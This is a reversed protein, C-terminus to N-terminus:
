QGCVADAPVRLCLVMKKTGVVIIFGVQKGKKEWKIGSLPLCSRKMYFAEFFGLPLFPLHEGERRRFLQMTVVIKEFFFRRLNGDVVSSFLPKRKLLLSFVGLCFFSFIKAAALM